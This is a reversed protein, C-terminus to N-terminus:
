LRRGKAVLVPTEKHQLPREALDALGSAILHRALRGHARGCSGDTVQARDTTFGDLSCGLRGPAHGCIFALPSIRERPEDGKFSFGVLEHSTKPLFM